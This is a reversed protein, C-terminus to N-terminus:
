TIIKHAMPDLGTNPEVSLPSDAQSERGRGEGMERSM